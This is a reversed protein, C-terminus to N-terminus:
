QRWRILRQRNVDLSRSRDPVSAAEVAAWACLCVVASGVGAARLGVISAAAGIIFAGLAWGARFIFTYLAMIRGRVADAAEHQIVVQTGIGNVAITFGLVFASSISIFYGPSGALSGAAVIMVFLGISVYPRLANGKDASIISMWVSGLTAGVGFAGFLWSLLQLSKQPVLGAFGPLLDMLSRGGLTAILYILLMTRISPRSFASKYGTFVDAFTSRTSRQQPSASSEHPIAFLLGLFAAHLLASLGYAVAASSHLLIISAMGPGIAVSVNLVISNVGIASNLHQNKVLQPVIALSAPLYLANIAGRACFMILGLEPTMRFFISVVVLVLSILVSFIQCWRLIYVRDYRDALAGSIPMLILLPVIEAFGTLGLWFPSALSSWVAWALTTRQLWWACCFCLSGITFLRFPKDSLATLATAM